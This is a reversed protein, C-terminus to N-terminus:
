QANSDQAFERIGNIEAETFMVELSGSLMKSCADSMTAAWVTRNKRLEDLVTDLDNLEAAIILRENEEYLNALLNLTGGNITNIATENADEVAVFVGAFFAAGCAVVFALATVIRRV